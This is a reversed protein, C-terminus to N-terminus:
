RSQGPLSNWIEVLRAAPWEVALKDLKKLNTFQEADPVGNAEERSGHATINNESTITYITMTAKRKEATNIMATAVNMARTASVLLAIKCYILTPSSNAISGREAWIQCTQCRIAPEPEFRFRFCSCAM